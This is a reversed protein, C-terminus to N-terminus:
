TYSLHRDSTIGKRYELNAFQATIHEGEALL